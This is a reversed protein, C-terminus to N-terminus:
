EGAGETAWRICAAVRRDSRRWRGGLYAFLGLAVVAMAKSLLFDAFWTTSDDKTGAFLGFMALAFLGLLLLIRTLSIANNM